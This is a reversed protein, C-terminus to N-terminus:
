TVAAELIRPWLYAEIMSAVLLMPLAIAVTVGTAALLKEWEGRRSFSMWAALPLFIAVLELLAHPLLTLTLEAPTIGFQAAATAGTGGLIYIQSTLSFITVAVVLGIAIQGAREHLRRSFGTRREASLPISSGAIFGAVCATAHFALVLLNRGITRAVDELDAPFAVGTIYIYTPDPTSLAAVAWVGFLVLLAIALAGLFWTRVVPLPNRQWLEVTSRTDQIGRALVYDNVSM